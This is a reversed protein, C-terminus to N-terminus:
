ISVIGLERGMQVAFCILRRQMKNWDEITPFKYGNRACDKTVCRLQKYQYHMPWHKCYACRETETCFDIKRKM